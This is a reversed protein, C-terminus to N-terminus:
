EGWLCSLSGGLDGLANVAVRFGERAAVAAAGILLSPVLALGPLGPAETDPREWSVLIGSAGCRGVTLRGAGRLRLLAAVVLVVAVSAAGGPHRVDGDPTGVPESELTVARGRLLGAMGLAAEFPDGSSGSLGRGPSVLASLSELYSRVEGASARAEGIKLSSKRSGAPYIAALELNGVLGVLRNGLNHLIMPLALGVSESELEQATPRLRGPPRAALEDLLSRDMPGATGLHLGPVGSSFGPSASVVVPLICDALTRVQEVDCPEALVPEM